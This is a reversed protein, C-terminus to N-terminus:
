VRPPRAPRPPIVHVLHITDAQISRRGHRTDLELHDPAAVVLYGISDALGGEPHRCRVTLRTGLPISLWAPESSM